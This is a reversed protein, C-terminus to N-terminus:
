ISYTQVYKVEGLITTVALSLIEPHVVIKSMALFLITLNMGKGIIYTSHSIYGVEDLKRVRTVSEM